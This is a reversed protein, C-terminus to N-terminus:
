TSFRNVRGQPDVTRTVLRTIPDRTVCSAQGPMDATEVPKGNADSRQEAVQGLPNRAKTAISREGIIRWGAQHNM